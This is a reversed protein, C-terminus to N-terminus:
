KIKGWKAGVDKRTLVMELGWKVEGGEGFGEIVEAVGVEGAERAVEAPTGAAGLGEFAVTSRLGKDAGNALLWVAMELRGTRAAVHLATNGKRNRRDPAAGRAVLATASLMDGAMAACYLADCGSATTRHIDAPKKVKSGTSDSNNNNNNNNNSTTTTTNVTLLLLTLTPRGTMCATMLPTEDKANVGDPDAGAALLRAAAPRSGALIAHHLPRNGDKPDQLDPDAGHTLLLDLTARNTLAWPKHLLSQGSPDRANPDAGHSLLVAASELHGAELAAWLPTPCDPHDCSTSPNAGHDLLINVSDTHGNRSALWLPTEAFQENTKLELAEQTPPKTAAAALLYLEATLNNAAAIHLPTSGSNTRGICPNAGRGLLLRIVATDAPKEERDERRLAYSLPTEGLYDRADPDVDKALLCRVVRELNKESAIHIARRGDFDALYIDAGRQILMMAVEGAGAELARMLPTASDSDRADMGARHDLLM